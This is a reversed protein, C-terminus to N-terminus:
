ENNKIGYLKYETNNSQLILDDEKTMLLCSKLFQKGENIKSAFLCLSFHSLFLTFSGQGVWHNTGQMDATDAPPGYWRWPGPIGDPERTAASDWTNSRDNASLRIELLPLHIEVHSALWSIFLKGQWDCHEFQFYIKVMKPSFLRSWFVQRLHSPM